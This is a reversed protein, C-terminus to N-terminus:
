VFSSLACIRLGMASQRKQESQILHALAWKEAAQDKASDV